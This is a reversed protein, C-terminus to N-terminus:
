APTFVADVKVNFGLSVDLNVRAIWYTRYLQGTYPGTMESTNPIEIQFKGEYHPSREGLEIVTDFQPSESVFSHSQAHYEVHRLFSIKLQPLDKLRPNDISYSGTIVTGPLIVSQDVRVQVNPRDPDAETSFPPLAGLVRRPSYVPVVERDFPDIWWPVTLRAELEYEVFMGDQHRDFRGRTRGLEVTALSPQATPPLVFQFPLRYTGADVHDSNQFPLAEHFSSVLELFPARQVIAVRSKGEQVTIQSTEAGHLYLLLDTARVTGECELVLTGSITGGPISYDPLGEFSVQAM